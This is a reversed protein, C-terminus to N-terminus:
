GCRWGAGQVAQSGLRRSGFRLGRGGVVAGKQRRGWGRGRLVVGVLAGADLAAEYRRLLKRGPLRLLALLALRGRRRCRRGLRRRGELGGGLGDSHGGSRRRQERQQLLLPASAQWGEKAAQGPRQGCPAGLACRMGRPGQNKRAQKQAARKSVPGLGTRWTPLRLVHRQPKGRKGGGGRRPAPLGKTRGRGAAAMGVAKHGEM